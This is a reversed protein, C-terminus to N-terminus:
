SLLCIPKCVSNYVGGWLNFHLMNENVGCLVRIRKLYTESALNFFALILSTTSGVWLLISYLYRIKSPFFGCNQRLFKSIFLYCFHMPFVYWRIPASLPHKLGQCVHFHIASEVWTRWGCHVHLKHKFAFFFMCSRNIDAITSVSCLLLWHCRQM